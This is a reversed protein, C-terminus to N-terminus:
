LGTDTQRDSTPKRSFRSLTPDHLYFCLIAWSSHNESALPSLLIGGPDGWRSRWISTRCTTGCSKYVLGPQHRYRLASSLFRNRDTILFAMRYAVTIEGSIWCEKRVLLPNKHIYTFVLTRKNLSSRVRDLAGGVLLCARAFLVDETWSRVTCSVWSDGLSRAIRWTLQFRALQWAVNGFSSTRCTRVLDFNHLQLTVTPLTYYVHASLWSAMSDSTHYLNEFHYMLIIIDTRRYFKIKISEASSPSIFIFQM